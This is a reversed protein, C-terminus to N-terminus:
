YNIDIALWHVTTGIPLNPRQNFVFQNQNSTSHQAARVTTMSFNSSDPTYGIFGCIHPNEVDILKIGYTEVGAIYMISSGTLNEIDDDAVWYLAIYKSSNLNHVIPKMRSWSEAYDITGTAFKLGGGGSGFGNALTKVADGISVDDAGTTDNAYDLLADLRAKTDTLVSVLSM